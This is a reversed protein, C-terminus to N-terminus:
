LIRGTWKLTATGTTSNNITCKFPTSNGDVTVNTNTDPSSVNYTVWGVKVSPITITLISNETIYITKSSNKIATTYNDSFNNKDESIFGTGSVLVITAEFRNNKTVAYADCTIELTIIRLEKPTIYIKYGLEDTNSELYESIFNGTDTDIVCGKGNTWGNLIYGDRATFSSTDPLDITQGLYYYKETEVKIGNYELILKGKKIWKATFEIDGVIDLTITENPNYLTDSDDIYWGVFYYEFKNNNNTSQYSLENLDTLTIQQQLGKQSIITRTIPTAIDPYDTIFTINAPSEIFEGYLMLNMNPYQTLYQEFQELTIATFTKNIRKDVGIYWGAFAMNNYSAQTSIILKNDIFNSITFEELKSEFTIDNKELYNITGDENTGSAFYYDIIYKHENWSAYLNISNENESLIYNKAQNGNALLWEVFDYHLKTTLYETGLIKYETSGVVHIVKTDLKTDGDYFNITFETVNTSLVWVIEGDVLSSIYSNKSFNDNENGNINGIAQSTGRVYYPDSVKNYFKYNSLTGNDNVINLVAGESTSIIKGGIKGNVNITGNNIILADNKEPWPNNNNINNYTFEIGNLKKYTLATVDVPENGGAINVTANQEVELKSGPMFLYDSKNLNFTSGSAITIDMLAIPAPKTTDTKMDVKIVSFSLSINLTADEYAGYVKVKDRQWLLQNSGTVLDLAEYKDTNSSSSWQSSPEAWKEVYGSSGKFLCNSSTGILEATPTADITVKGVIPIDTSMYAYVFGYYTAGAYIKTKCSVNHASWLVTPMVDNHMNKGANGGPWDYTHMCDTMSSNNNLIVNGNGKIYGYAYGKSGSEFKIEGNNFIVGRNCTITTNPQSFGITADVTITSGSSVSISISTPIYLASYVYGTKVTRSIKSEKVEPACNITMSRNNSITYSNKNYINNKLNCFSTYVFSTANSSDGAFTIDGSCSLADEITYYTSSIKATQYKFTLCEYEANNKYIFNTNAIKVGVTYTSGVLNDNSDGTIKVGNIKYNNLDYGELKMDNIFSIDGYAFTGDCMGYIALSYPLSENLLKINPIIENCIAEYTRKSKNYSYTIITKDLTVVKPNILFTRTNNSPLKYNINSLASATATYTESNVNANIQGGTVTITCDDGTCLNTATATPVKTNGDYTFELNSWEINIERKNISYTIQCTNSQEYDDKTVYLSIYYTGVTKIETLDTGYGNNNPDTIKAIVLNYGTITQSDCTVNIHLDVESLGQKNYTKEQKQDCTLNLPLLVKKVEIEKKIIGTYNGNGTINVYGTGLVTLNEETIVYDTNIALQIDGDMVRISDKDLNTGLNISGPVGIITIDTSTISKPNIIYNFSTSDSLTYNSNSLIINDKTITYNGVNVSTINTSLDCIENAVLGDTVKLLPTQNTRNYIFSNEGDISISIEKPEITFKVNTSSNDLNKVSVKVDYVGANKPKGSIYNNTTDLIPKYSFELEGFEILNEVSSVPAHENGDYIISEEGSFYKKIVRDPNYSPTLLSENLIIWTSMGVAVLLPLLLLIFAIINRKNKM